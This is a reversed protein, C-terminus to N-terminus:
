VNPPALSLSQIDHQNYSFSLRIPLLELQKKTVQTSDPVCVVREKVDSSSAKACINQLLTELYAPQPSVDYCLSSM